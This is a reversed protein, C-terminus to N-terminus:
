GKANDNEWFKGGKPGRERTKKTKARSPDEVGVLGDLEKFKLKGDKILSQVECKLSNCNKTSHGSNGVHYDCRVNANYWILFPPRFPALYFPEIFGSEILKPFLKTYTIIIPDWQIKDKGTKQENYKGKSSSPQDVPRSTAMFAPPTIPM